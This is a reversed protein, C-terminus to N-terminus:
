LRAAHPGCLRIAFLATLSVLAVSPLPACAFYAFPCLRLPAPLPAWAFPRLCLPASLPACAFPAPLPACAFPRLCPPAPLNTCEFPPAPLPACALPRLCPPAPLPACAFPCLCLPVPVPACTHPCTRVPQWVGCAVAILVRVEFKKLLKKQRERYADDKTEKKKARAEAVRRDTERNDREVMKMKEQMEKEMDRTIPVGDVALTFLLCVICNLTAPVIMLREDGRGIFGARRRASTSDVGDTRVGFFTAVAVGAATPYLKGGLWCRDLNPLVMSLYDHDASANAPAALVGKEILRQMHVCLGM